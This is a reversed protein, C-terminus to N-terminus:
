SSINPPHTSPPIYSCENKVAAYSRPLHDTELGSLKVWPIFDEVVCQSPPKNAKSNDHIIQLLYFEDGQQSHFWFEEIM